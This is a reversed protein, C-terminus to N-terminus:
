EEIVPCPRPQPAPKPVPAAKAPKHQAAMNLRVLREAVAGALRHRADHAVRPSAANVEDPESLDLATAGNAVRTAGRFATM